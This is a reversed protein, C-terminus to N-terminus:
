LSSMAASLKLGPPFQFSQGVRLTITGSQELYILSRGHSVQCRRPRIEHCKNDNWAWTSWDLGVFLKELGRARFKSEHWLLSTMLLVFSFSIITVDIWLFFFVCNKGKHYFCHINNGHIWTVIMTVSQDNINSQNSRNHTLRDVNTGKKTTNYDVISM